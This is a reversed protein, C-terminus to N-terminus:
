PQLVIGSWQRGCPAANHHTAFRHSFFDRANTYTCIGVDFLNPPAVGFRRLRMATYGPLDFRPRNDGSQVFASASDSDELLFRARFDDDVEYAQQHICPGLVAIIRQRQAGLAEMAEICREGVGSLAGRWGAHAAGAVQATPDVMVIPLCDATM